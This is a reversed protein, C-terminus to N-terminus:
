QPHFLWNKVWFNAPVGVCTYLIHCIFGASRFAINTRKSWWTEAREEPWAQLTASAPAAAPETGTTWGASLAPGPEAAWHGASAAAPGTAPCGAWWMVLEQSARGLWLCCGRGPCGSGSWQWCWRWSPLRRRKLDVAVRVFTQSEVIWM